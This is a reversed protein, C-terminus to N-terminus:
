LAVSTDGAVRVLRRFLSVRRSVTSSPTHRHFIPFMAVYGKAGVAVDCSQRQNCGFRRGRRTSCHKTIRTIKVPVNCCHFVVTFRGCHFVVTFRHESCM